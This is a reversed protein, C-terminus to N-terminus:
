NKPKPLSSIQKMTNSLHIGITGLPNNKFAPHTMVKRFQEQEAKLAMKRGRMSVVRKLHPNIHDPRIPVSSGTSKTEINKLEEDIIDLFKLPDAHAEKEQKAKMKVADEIGIIM